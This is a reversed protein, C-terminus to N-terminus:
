QDTSTAAVAERVVRSRCVTCQRAEVEQMTWSSTSEPSSSTYSAPPLPRLYGRIACESCLLLPKEFLAPSVGTCDSHADGITERKGVAAMVSQPNEANRSCRECMCFFRYTGLLNRRREASNMEEVDTYCITLPEQPEIARLGYFAAVRGGHYMVRCLNPVCSHNFYSAEPYVGFGICHDQTDYVGFGNCQAAACLRQFYVESVQLVGSTNKENHGSPQSATDDDRCRVTGSREHLPLLHQLVPLVRKVFVRYYRQYTSRHQKSIVSLNTELQAFMAYQPTRASLLALPGDEAGSGSTGNGGTRTSALVVNAAGVESQDSVASDTSDDRKRFTGLPGKWGLAASAIRRLEPDPDLVEVTGTLGAKARIENISWVEKPVVVSDRAALTSNEGREHLSGGEEARDSTCDRGRTPLRSQVDLACAQTEVEVSVSGDTVAPPVELRAAIPGEEGPVAADEATPNFHTLYGDRYARTIVVANFLLAQFELMRPESTSRAWHLPEEGPMVVTSSTAGGARGRHGASASSSTVGMAYYEAMLRPYLGRLVACEGSHEHEDRYARWCAESCYCLVGCGVCGSMAAEGHGAITESSSSSFVPADWGECRVVPLGQDVRRSRQLRRKFLLEERLGLARELLRRKLEVASDKRTETSKSPKKLKRFMAAAAASAADDVPAGGNDFRDDGDACTAQTGAVRVVRDLVEQEESVDMALEALSGRNCLWRGAPIEQFCVSCWAPITTHWRSTTAVSVKNQADGEGQLAHTYHSASASGGAAATSVLGKAQNSSGHGGARKTSAKGGRVAQLATTVADPVTEVAKASLYLASPCYNPNM